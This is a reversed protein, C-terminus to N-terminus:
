LTSTFLITKFFYHFIISFVSDAEVSRSYRHSHTLLLYSLYSTFRNPDIDIHFDGDTELLLFSVKTLVTSLRQFTM